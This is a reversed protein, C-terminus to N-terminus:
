IAPCTRALEDELDRAFVPAGARIGRAKALRYPLAAGYRAVDGPDLGYIGDALATRLDIWKVGQGEYAILLDEIGDADAAGIHLLLIQRIERHMLTRSLERMRRLEEVHGDVFVRRLKTLSQADNQVTCRSFPANFAWDNADITVPAM